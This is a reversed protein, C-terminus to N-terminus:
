GVLIRYFNEKSHFKMFKAKSETAMVQYKSLNNLAENMASVLQDIDGDDVLIGTGFQNAQQSMWTNNTTIFPKNAGISECLIGSTRARYGANVQYPILIVNTNQIQFNYEASSLSGLIIIEINKFSSLKTRYSDFIEKDREGFIQITFQIKEALLAHKKEIKELATFIMEMGKELRMIGPAYFKTKNTKNTPIEQTSSETIHPIPLVDMNTGYNAIWEDAIVKSDTTFYISANHKAISAAKKLIYRIIPHFIKPADTLEVVSNRFLISVKTTSKKFSNIIPLLNYWYINPVFFHVEGDSYSISNIITKYQNELAKWFNIRYLVAGLITIKRYWPTPNFLFTPKAAIATKIKDIVSANGYVEIAYGHSEMIEKVSKIYEFNHGDITKLQEDLIIMKKTNM